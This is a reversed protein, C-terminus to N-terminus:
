SPGKLLRVQFLFILRGFHRCIIKQNEQRFNLSKGYREMGMNCINGRIAIWGVSWVNKEGRRGAQPCVSDALAGRFVAGCHLGLDPQLHNIPIYPSNHPYIYLAHTPHICCLDQHNITSPFIPKARNSWWSGDLSLPKVVFFRWFPNLFSPILRWLCPFDGDFMILNCRRLMMCQFKPM